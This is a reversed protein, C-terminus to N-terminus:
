DAETYWHMLPATDSGNSFLKMVQKIYVIYFLVGAVAATRFSHWSHWWHCLEAGHCVGAACNECTPVARQATGTASRLTLRRIMASAVILSNVIACDGRLEGTRTLEHLEHRMFKQNSKSPNV